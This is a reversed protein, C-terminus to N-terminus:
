SPNIPATSKYKKEWTKFEKLIFILVGSFVIIGVPIGAYYIGNVGFYIPLILLMPIYLVIERAVLVIGAEKAKGIAQYLTTGLLFVPFLPITSMFLRYNWIDQATLTADPLMWGLITTPFALIFIWLIALFITGTLAFVKYSKVVRDFIGAGFNIGAIPQLAQAFGFVPFVCLILVRYCTGMFALDWEDGYHALSKFVVTQQVFFMIQMMMASVGVALIPRIMKRELSFTSLSVEYDTRRSIFYWLNLISFVIMAVVTAWAAGHIGWYYIFIPNLVINLLTSAITIIMAEKVKGEARILMNAAVAFIRFFAGYMMIRYYIVGLDLIEGKGGLFAILDRAYYLGFATLILSTILSLAATTGFSKLQIDKDGSGIAISLLSSAGVGIMASIGNTIMMLPFALALAAVANQGIMQGVFLADVFANIGNISMAIIAPLSLKLMLRWLNDSLLEQRLDKEGAM